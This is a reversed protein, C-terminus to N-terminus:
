SGSAAEAPPEKTNRHRRRLQGCAAEIEGGKSRRVSVNIGRRQLMDVFHRLHQESPPRLLAHEVPNLPILNLHHRLPRLLHVLRDADADFDNVERLLVYTFTVPQGGTAESFEGCAAMLEALSWRAAGPMLERRQEERTSNLSVALNVGLNLKALERIQPVIGCTAITVRRPSLGFAAKDTLRQVATLTAELNLLPDGMGMFVVNRPRGHRAGLVTAQALVEGASLNRECGALTSACFACGMACGVQTSLCFTPSLDMQMSVCEVEAGDVFGLLLKSTQEGAQEALVECGPLAFAENLQDRLAGPLSTMSEFVLAFKQYLWECVQRARYPKEGRATMWAGLEPLELDYILPLRDPMGRITARRSEVSWRVRVQAISATHNDAETGVQDHHLPDLAEGLLVTVTEQQADKGRALPLLAIAALAPGLGQGGAKGGLFSDHLGQAGAITLAHLVLLNLDEMVGGAFGVQAQVASGGLMRRAQSYLGHVQGQRM